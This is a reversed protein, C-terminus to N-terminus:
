VFGLAPKVAKTHREFKIKLKNKERLGKYDVAM